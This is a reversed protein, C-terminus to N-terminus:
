PSGDAVKDPSVPHGRGRGRRPGSAAKSGARPERQANRKEPAGPRSVKELSAAVDAVLADYGAALAPRRALLVVDLAPAGEPAAGGGIADAFAARLRRKIRNREVAHGVKKTVTFGVRLGAGSAEAEERLRGQVTMRETHFRRGSAAAVFDRRKTLREYPHQRGAGRM